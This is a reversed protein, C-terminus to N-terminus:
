LINIFDKVTITDIDLIKRDQVHFFQIHKYKDFIGNLDRIWNSSDVPPAISKAYNETNKYVNNVKGKNNSLDFGLLYISDPKEVKICLEISCLGSDGIPSEILDNINIIKNEKNIWIIYHQPNPQFNKDLERGFYAFMYNTCYNEYITANHPISEKIYSVMEAPLLNFNRFYCQNSISYNSQLIEYYMWEDIATLASPTFDRYIANCGYTTHTKVSDYNISLRSEGNGMVIYM